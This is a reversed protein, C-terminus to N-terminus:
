DIDHEVAVTTFTATSNTTDVVPLITDRSLGEININIVDLVAVGTVIIRLEHGGKLSFTQSHRITAVAARLPSHITVLPSVLGSPHLNKLLTGASTLNETINLTNVGGVSAFYHINEITLQSGAAVRIRIDLATGGGVATITYNQSFAYALNKTSQVTIEAEIDGLAAIINVQFSAAISTNIAATATDILALTTQSAFDKAEVLVMLANIEALADDISQTNFISPKSLVATGGRLRGLKAEIEKLVRFFEERTTAM